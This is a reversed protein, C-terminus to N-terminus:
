QIINQAKRLNNISDIIIVVKRYGEYLDKQNATRFIKRFICYKYKFKKTQEDSIYDYSSLRNLFKISDGFSITVTYSKLFSLQNAIKQLSLKILNEDNTEIVKVYEGNLDSLKNTEEESLFKFLYKRNTEEIAGRVNKAVNLTWCTFALGIISAIGSIINFWNCEM